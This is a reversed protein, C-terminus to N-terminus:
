PKFHVRALIIAVLELYATCHGQELDGAKLQASPEV